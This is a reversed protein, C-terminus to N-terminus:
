DSRNWSNGTLSWNNIDRASGNIAYEFSREFDTGNKTQRFYYYRTREENEGIDYFTRGYKSGDGGLAEIITAHFDIQSVPAASTTYEDGVGKGAPKVFLIPTPTINEYEDGFYVIGNDANAGVEDNDFIGIGHDSMIIVTSDDYIGLEKLRDLYDYVIHFSGYGQSRLTANDTREGNEDISWPYHEGFLHIFTFTKDKGDKKRISLGNEKLGEYFSADDYEYPTTEPSEITEDIAMDTLDDTYFWFAPKMIIPANKYLACNEMARFLGTYNVSPKEEVFNDIYKLASKDTYMTKVYVNIHTDLDYIDKLFDSQAYAYQPYTWLSQAPDWKTATLLYPVSPLTNQYVGAYDTYRTFGELKDFFGPTEKELDDAYENDFYDLIFVIVNNEPGVEYLGEKSVYCDGQAVSFDTIVTLTILASVQGVVLLASVLRLCKEWINLSFYRVAYPIIMLLLWLALNMVALKTHEQWAIPQGNMYGFNKNLFNGQIYFCVTLSFVFTTVADFVKGRLLMMVATAAVVYILSAAGMILVTVDLPFAFENINGIFLELPSFFLIYFAFATNVFLATIFRKSKKREDHWLWKLRKKITDM